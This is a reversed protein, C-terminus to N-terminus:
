SPWPTARSLNPRRARRAGLPARGEADFPPHEGLRVDPRAEIEKPPCDYSGPHITIGQPTGPRFGRRAPPTARPSLFALALAAHATQERQGIGVPQRLPPGASGATEQEPIAQAGEEIRLAERHLLIEDGALQIPPRRLAPDELRRRYIKRLDSGQESRIDLRLLQHLPLRVSSRHQSSPPSRSPAM